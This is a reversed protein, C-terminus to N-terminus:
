KLKDLIAKCLEDYKEPTIGSCEFYKESIAGIQILRRAREKREKDRDKKALMREQRELKAIRQRIKDLRSPKETEVEATTQTNNETEM